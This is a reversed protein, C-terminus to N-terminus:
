FIFFIKYISAHVEFAVKFNKVGHTARCGAWMLCFGETSVPYAQLCEKDIIINLDCTYPDIVVDEPGFEFEQDM